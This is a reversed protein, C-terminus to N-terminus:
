EERIYTRYMKMMTGMVEHIKKPKYMEFWSMEPHDPWYYTPIEYKAAIGLEINAGKSEEWGPLMIIADCRILMELDGRLWDDHTVRQTDVEFHCTNMHPCLVSFGQEWLNVAIKRAVVINESIGNHTEANYRGSLYLLMMRKGVWEKRGM